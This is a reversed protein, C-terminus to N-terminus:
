ALALVPVTLPQRAGLDNVTNIGDPLKQLEDLLTESEHWVFKYTEVAEERHDNEVDEDLAGHVPHELLAAAGMASLEDVTLRRAAAGGTGHSESDGM